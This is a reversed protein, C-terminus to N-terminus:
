TTSAHALVLLARFDRETIIKIDQGAAIYMRAKTEKGTGTSAAVLYTTKKTVGNGCSAGHRAVAEMAEEREMSSLEGTFVFVQGFFPNNPNAAASPQPLESLRKSPTFYAGSKREPTKPDGQWLGELSDQDFLQGIKLAIQACAMADAAADHHNTLNVGLSRAVTPLKNDVLQMRQQALRVTCLFKPTPVRLGSAATTAEFVGQDFPANHAVLTSGESFALVPLILQAWRPANQVQSATIGHIRINGAEFRGYEPEPLILSSASGVIKGDVVRVLGVACASARSGNATEFDIATFNLGTM